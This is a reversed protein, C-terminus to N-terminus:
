GNSFTQQRRCGEIHVTSLERLMVMVALYDGGGRGDDVWRNLVPLVSRHVVPTRSATQHGYYSSFM